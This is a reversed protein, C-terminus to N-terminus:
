AGQNDRLQHVLNATPMGHNSHYGFAAKAEDRAKKASEMEGYVGIFKRKGNVNIQVHWKSLRKNWHIGIEGSTNTNPLSRNRTNDAQSVLRLNEIRNDSRDHNIHDIGVGDSIPGNFMEWVIRHALYREGAYELSRYGQKLCGAIDGVKVRNAPKISWVLNGDVLSFIEKWNHM